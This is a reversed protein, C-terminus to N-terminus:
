EETRTLRLSLAFSIRRTQELNTSTQFAAADIGLGRTINFGIGTSGHWLKRSYRSGGRVVLPGLKYEAGGGLNFREDLGRGAEAVASWHGSHYATHGSYRVPLTVRLDGTPAPLPTTTFDGGSTLSQLEYRRSTRDRWDIRNGIGDVGVGFDWHGVAITTALDIAFGRGAKSTTRDVVVPTTSPTLTVLGSSDTDFQLDLDANDYHVGHLYHYSAAVYIGQRNNGGQSAGPLAFRGRYGGTISLAAQGTTNDGILFTTNPMYVDTSSSFISILNPDFNLNTGLSVYPGAGVFIGHRYGGSNSRVVPITTGWTPSILGIARIEPSPTFGRYANLDRNIEGNVLSNIFYHGQSDSNRDLTVHLPDAAYEVARAPNFESDNPDFFRRNHILQFIGFPIPIARYSQQGEMLQSAINDSGGAGGLGIRRADSVLNQASGTRPAATIVLTIILLLWVIRLHRM